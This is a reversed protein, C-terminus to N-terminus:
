ERPLVKTRRIGQFSSCNAVTKTYESEWFEDVKSIYCTASNQINIAVGWNRRCIENRPSADNHPLADNHINWFCTPPVRSKKIIFFVM